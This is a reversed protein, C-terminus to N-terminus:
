ERYFTSLGLQRCREQMVSANAIDRKPLPRTQDATPKPVPKQSPVVVSTKKAPPKIAPLSPSTADDSEPESSTKNSSVNKADLISKKPLRVTPDSDVISIESNSPNKKIPPKESTKM